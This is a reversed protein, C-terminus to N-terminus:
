KISLFENVIEGVRNPQELHVAHGSDPIVDIQVSALCEKIDEHIATFKPDFEGAILHVNAKIESLREWLSPMAGTGMLRLSRSLLEPKNGTKTRNTRYLIDPKDQLSQFLPQSYWDDLFQEYPEMLLRNALFSDKQRRANQEEITKLGPTSSIIIAKEFLDPYNVLLYYALRGGMSYGLLNYKPAPFTHKLIGALQKACSPMTYDDDETAVTQGHGPLDFIICHHQKSISPLLSQWELSSGMFGHLLVLPSNTPNGCTQISFDIM